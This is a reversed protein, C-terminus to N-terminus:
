IIRMMYLLNFLSLVRHLSWSRKKLKMKLQHYKLNRQMHQTLRKIRSLQKWEGARAWEPCESSVMYDYAEKSINISKKCPITNRTMFYIPEKYRGSADKYDLFLKNPTVKDMDYARSVVKEKKKTFKNYKYEVLKESCEQESLMTSGQLVISLNVKISTDM